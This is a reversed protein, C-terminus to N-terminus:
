VKVPIVVDVGPKDKPLNGALDAIRQLTELFGESADARQLTGPRPRRKVKPISLYACETGRKLLYLQFRVPINEEFIEDGEM